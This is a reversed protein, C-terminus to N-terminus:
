RVIKHKISRIYNIMTNPFVYLFVSRPTACICAFIIQMLVFLKIDGQSYKLANRLHHAARLFDYETYFGIALVKHRSAIIKNYHVGLYDKHKEYAVFIDESWLRRQTGLSGNVKRSLYLPKDIYVFNAIRALRLLMDFDEARLTVDYEGVSKHLNRSFFITGPVVWGEAEVKSYFDKGQWPSSKQLKSFTSGINGQEDICLSDSHFVTSDMPFSRTSSIMQEIFNNQYKDDSALCAIWDGHSKEFCKNATVCV